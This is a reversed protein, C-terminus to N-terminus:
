LIDKIKTGTEVLLDNCNSICKKSDNCWDVFNVSFLKDCNSHTFVSNWFGEIVKVIIKEYDYGSDKFQTNGMCVSGHSSTNFFPAQYLKDKGSKVEKKVAFIYLSNGSLKWILRPVWYMGSKVPLHKAYLIEKLGSETEWIVFKENTKYKLINKPIIDKFGYDKIGQIDNVFNFLSKATEVTLSKGASLKNTTREYDHYIMTNEYGCLVFNLEQQKEDDIYEM